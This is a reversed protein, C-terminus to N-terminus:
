PNIDSNNLVISKLFLIRPFIHSIKMENKIKVGWWVTGSPPLQLLHLIREVIQIADGITLGECSTIQILCGKADSPTVSSWKCNGVNRSLIHLRSDFSVHTSYLIGLGSLTALPHETIPQFDIITLHPESICYLIDVIISAFESHWACNSNLINNFNAERNCKLIQNRKPDDIIFLCDAFDRMANLAIGRNKSNNLLSANDSDLVFIITSLGIQKAQQAIISGVAISHQEIDAIIICIRYENLISSLTNETKGLYDKRLIGTISIDIGNFIETGPFLNQNIPPDKNTELGIITAFPTDLTRMEHIIKNGAIGSGIIITDPKEDHNMLKEKRLETSIFIFIM